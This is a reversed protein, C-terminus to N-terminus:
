CLKRKKYENFLIFPTTFIIQIIRKFQKDPESMLRYLWEIKLTVMWEPARKLQDIGSYFKFVAGVGILVGRDLMPLLRNMFREQKPAGLGIWIIHPKASNIQDAIESFNFEDANCFPLSLFKMQAIASDYSILQQQLSHLLGDTAGVFMMNYKRQGVIDAFLESGCYQTYRSGYILRIYLPVWGSDCVSFISNNVESHYKLDKNVNSLVVGDAVCVFGKGNNNVVKDISRIVEKKDFEYRIGFYENM